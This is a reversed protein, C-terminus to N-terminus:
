WKIEKIRRLWEDFEESAKIGYTQMKRERHESNVNPHCGETLVYTKCESNSSKLAKDIGKGGNEKTVFVIDYSDCNKFSIPKEM